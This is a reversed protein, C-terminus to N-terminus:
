GNEKKHCQMCKTPAAGGARKHCDICTGAAATPNHFAAQKGTKMGAQPPKTHCGTCAQQPATATRPERSLHHCTQCAVPHKVHQFRVAGMPAGSLIIPQAPPKPQTKASTPPPSPRSPEQQPAETGRSPQAVGPKSLVPPAPAPAVAGKEQEVRPAPVPKPTQPAPHQPSKLAIPAGAGKDPQGPQSPPAQQAESKPREPERQQSPPPQQEESRKQGCGGAFLVCCAVVLGIVKHRM